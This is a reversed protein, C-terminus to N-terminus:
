VPLQLGHLFSVILGLALAKQTSPPCETLLSM